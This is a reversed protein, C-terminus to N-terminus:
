LLRDAPLLRAATSTTAPLGNLSSCNSIPPLRRTKCYQPWNDNARAITWGDPRYPGFCGAIAAPTVGADEVALWLDFLDRGRSRQFLARAKTATLEEIV